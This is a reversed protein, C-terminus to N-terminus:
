NLLEKHTKKLMRKRWTYKNDLLYIVNINSTYTMM